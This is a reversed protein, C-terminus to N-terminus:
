VMRRNYKLKLKVLDEDNIDTRELWENFSYEIGHLWWEVKNAVKNILAPGNTRHVRGNHYYIDIKESQYAPSNEKHLRGNIPIAGNLQGM